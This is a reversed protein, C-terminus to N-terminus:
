FDPPPIGINTDAPTNRPPTELEDPPLEALNQEAAQTVLETLETLFRQKWPHGDYLKAIGIDRCMSAIIDAIPRNPTREAPDHEPPDYEAPDHEPPDNECGDRELAARLENLEADTMQHIEAQLEAESLQSLDNHDHPRRWPPALRPNRPQELKDVLAVNLRLSRNLEKITGFPDETLPPGPPSPRPSPPQTPAMDDPQTAEFQQQVQCHVMRMLDATIDIAVNLIHLNRQTSPAL